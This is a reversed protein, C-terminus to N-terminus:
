PRSPDAPRPGSLEAPRPGAEPRSPEAPPPGAEPRPPGAPRPGAQTGSPPRAPTRGALLQAGGLLVAAGTAVLAVVAGPGTLAFADAGPRDGEDTPSWAVVDRLTWLFVAGALLGLVAWASGPVPRRRAQALAAAAAAVAVVLLAIQLATAATWGDAGVLQLSARGEPLPVYCAWGCEVGTVTVWRLFPAVACAVAVAAALAPFALVARARM